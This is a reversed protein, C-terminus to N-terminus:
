GSSKSRNSLVANALARDDIGANRQHGGATRPM